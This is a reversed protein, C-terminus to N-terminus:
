DASELWSLPMWTFRCSTGKLEDPATRDPHQIFAMDVDEFKSTKLVAVRSGIPLFYAGIPLEKLYNPSPYAFVARKLKV